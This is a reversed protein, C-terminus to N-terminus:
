HGSVVLKQAVEPEIANRGCRPANRLDLDREIDVRVTNQMNGRRVFASALLLLDGDFSGATQAVIGDLLRLAIGFLVHGLGKYLRDKQFILLIGFVVLPLAYQSLDIKVGFSAMLWAGTTTGINSGFVIGIGEVLGILGASLFSISILTVLSSSQMIATAVFGFGLSKWRGGAVARLVRELVGGTFAHFGQELSLMGFMFIAVGAAVEMFDGSLWFGWALALLISPLIYRRYIMRNGPKADGARAM